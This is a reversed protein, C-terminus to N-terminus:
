LLLFLNTINIEGRIPRNYTDDGLVVMKRYIDSQISDNQQYCGSQHKIPRNIFHERLQDILNDDNVVESNFNSGIDIFTPLTGTTIGKLRQSTTTPPDARFGVFATQHPQTQLLHHMHYWCNYPTPGCMDYGTLGSISGNHFTLFDLRLGDVLLIM